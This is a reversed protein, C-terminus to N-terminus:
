TGAQQQRRNKQIFNVLADADDNYLVLEAYGYYRLRTPKIIYRLATLARRWFGFRPDLSTFLLWTDHEPRGEKDHILWAVHSSLNGCACRLLLEDDKVDTPM